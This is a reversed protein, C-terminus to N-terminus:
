LIFKEIIEAVADQNNDHETVYDAAKKIADIGNKMAVGTHVAKLMPIDNQEDGVAITSTFPINLLKTLYTVGTGKDTNVPCYELYERCSFFSNCRGRAWAANDKQFKKLKGDDELHILIVKQPEEDLTELINPTLKYSMHTRKTYYDLEKTHRNTIIDVNNYTQVYLGARKARDFLEQVDEIPVARKHLVHDAACDYIVAGNFAIMYCGPTTLGLEKAVIRGTEVPRGTAIVLYNGLELMRQIASRNKESISKDDCLLTGDLDAFLIKNNM